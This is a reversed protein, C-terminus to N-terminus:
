GDVVKAARSQWDNRWADMTEKERLYTQAAAVGKGLEEFLPRGPVLSLINFRDNKGMIDSMTPLFRAADKWHLNGMMGNARGSSQSLAAKIASMDRQHKISPDDGPNERAGRSRGEELIRDRISDAPKFNTLYRAGSETFSDFGYGTAAHLDSELTGHKERLASLTEDTLRMKASYAKGTLAVAAIVRGGNASIHSELAAFTAGQTLTDDLILYDQGNDVPGGFIPTAFIRDLGRLATRRPANDQSINTATELGLRLALVEAAARPIKNRGASEESVVPVIIPHRSGIKARVHAVLDDTVIAQAVRVAAAIDGSKAAAYDPHSSLSALNGGIM